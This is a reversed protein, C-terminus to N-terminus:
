KGLSSRRRGITIVSRERIAALGRNMAIVKQRDHCASLPPSSNPLKHPFRGNACPIEGFFVCSPIRPASKRHMAEETSMYKMACYPLFSEHEFLLM